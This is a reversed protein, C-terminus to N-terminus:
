FSFGLVINPVVLIPRTPWVGAARVSGGTIIMAMGAKFYFGSKDHKRAYGFGIIPRFTTGNSIVSTSSLSSGNYISGGVDFYVKHKPHHGAYFSILFPMAFIGKTNDVTTNTKDNYVFGGFGTSIGLWRLLFFEAWVGVGFAYGGLSAYVAFLPRKNRNYVPKSNKSQDYNIQDGGQEYNDDNSQYSFFLKSPRLNNDFFGKQTYITEHFAYNYNSLLSILSLIM